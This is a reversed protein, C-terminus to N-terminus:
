DIKLKSNGGCPCKTKYVTWNENSQEKDVPMPQGCKDCVFMLQKKKKKM